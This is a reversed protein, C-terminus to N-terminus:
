KTVYVYGSRPQQLMEEVGSEWEDGDYSDRYGTIRFFQDNVQFILWLDNGENYGSSEIFSTKGVSLPVEHGPFETILHVFNLSPHLKALKDNYEDISYKVETATVTMIM